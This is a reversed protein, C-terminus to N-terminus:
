TWIKWNVTVMSQRGELDATTNFNSLPRFFSPIVACPFYVVTCSNLKGIFLNKTAIIIIKNKYASTCKFFILDLSCASMHVFKNYGDFSSQSCILYAWSVWHIDSHQISVNYWDSTSHIGWAASDALETQHWSRSPVTLAYLDEPFIQLNSGEWKSKLIGLNHIKAPAKEHCRQLLKWVLCCIWVDM